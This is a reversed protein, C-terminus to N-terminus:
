KGDKKGEKIKDVIAKAAGQKGSIYIEFDNSELYDDLIEKIEKESIM